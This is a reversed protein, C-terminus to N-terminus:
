SAVHYMYIDDVSCRISRYMIMRDFKGVCWSNHLFFYAEYLM